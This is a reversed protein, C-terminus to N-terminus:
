PNLLKESRRKLCDNVYKAAMGATKASPNIVRKFIENETTITQKFNQSFKQRLDNYAECISVFHFEDEVGKKCILCVREEARTYPRTHRGKEIQLNQDSIRLKTLLIRHKVVKTNKLDMLIKSLELHELSTRKMEIKEKTM